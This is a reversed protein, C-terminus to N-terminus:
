LIIIVRKSMTKAVGKSQIKFLRFDYGDPEDWANNRGPSDFDLWGYPSHISIIKDPRYKDMLMMQFRTEIESAGKKGPYKRPTSRYKRKWDKLAHTDFDRTPFNRNLDVGRGNQRTPNKRFFGDPNVLPAIVIRHGKYADKNDFLIDRVMHICMYVTPLEDGHIGCQVLTTTKKINQDDSDFVQHVLPWKGVPTVFREDWDWTKPNCIIHGWFYRNIEQNFRNCYRKLEKDRDIKITTDEGAAFSTLAWAAM